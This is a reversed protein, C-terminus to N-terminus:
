EVEWRQCEIVLSEIYDASFLTRYPKRKKADKYKTGLDIPFQYSDIRGTRIFGEAEELTSFIHEIFSINTKTIEDHYHKMVVYVDM